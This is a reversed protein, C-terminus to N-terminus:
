QDKQENYCRKLCHECVGYYKCNTYDFVVNCETETLPCDICNPEYRCAGDDNVAACAWLVLGLVAALILFVYILM